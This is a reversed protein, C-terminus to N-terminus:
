RVVHFLHTIGDQCSVLNASFWEIRFSSTIILALIMQRRIIEQVVPISATRLGTIITLEAGLM